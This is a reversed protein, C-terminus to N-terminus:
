APATWPSAMVKMAPNLAKAQKTLAMVDVDRALTFDNLDCCTDDYSYSFRALDSTGMPNRLFSVGIGAVPDFLKQMVTNQTATSLAGSGHILWAATDTFSAGAGEFPQYT